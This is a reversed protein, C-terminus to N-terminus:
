GSRKQAPSWAQPAVIGWPTVDHQERKQRLWAEYAAGYADLEAETDFARTAHLDTATDIDTATFLGEGRDNLSQLSDPSIRQGRYIVDLSQPEIHVMGESRWVGQGDASGVTGLGLVAAIGILSTLGAMAARRRRRQTVTCVVAKSTNQPM